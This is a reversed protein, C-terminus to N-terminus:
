SAAPTVLLAFLLCAAILLVCILGAWMVAKVADGKEAADGDADDPHDFDARPMAEADIIPAAAFGLASTRANLRGDHFWHQERARRSTLGPVVKGGARNWDGFKRAATAKDGAVYAKLLSSSRFAGLGINFALDVLADFERQLVPGKAARLLAAVGKEFARLDNSLIDDAEAETITMGPRVPPGGAMGTHGYGVTWVGVCDRYAKLRKGESPQTLARRAADSMRARSLDFPAM